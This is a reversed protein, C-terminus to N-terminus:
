NSILIISQAWKSEDFVKNTYLIRFSRYKDDKKSLNPYIISTNCSDDLYRPQSKSPRVVDSKIWM